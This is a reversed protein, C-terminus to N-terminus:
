ARQCEKMQNLYFECANVDNNSRNMCDTFARVFEGCRDGSAMPAMPAPAPAEGVHEHVVRTERPGMLSDVARHAVASGTGMAMGTVVSGMLGSM